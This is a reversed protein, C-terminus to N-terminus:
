VIGPCLAKMIAAAAGATQNLRVARAAMGLSAALDTTAGVLAAVPAAVWTAGADAPDDLTVQVTATCGAGLDLQISPYPGVSNPDLLLAASAAVGTVSVTQTRSGM